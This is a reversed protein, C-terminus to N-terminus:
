NRSGAANGAKYECPEKCKRASAGFNFHYWCHPHGPPPQRDRSKSRNYNRSRCRNNSERPGSRSRPRSQRYVYSTLKAVQKTLESIDRNLDDIRSSSPQPQATSAAAIQQYPRSPAIEHVRDALEALDDLSLKPQCAIITQLSHPLRGSWLTLLIDDSVSPGALNRLHRLFQSPNRDGMDEHMLLQQLKKEKSASLRKILETKLKIFKDTVPPSCVVDKIHAVYTHELQSLAYYFKTSDSTVNSLVFQAELQAFWLKQTRIKLTFHRFECAM